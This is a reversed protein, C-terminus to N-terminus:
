PWIAKARDFELIRSGSPNIWSRIQVWSKGSIM